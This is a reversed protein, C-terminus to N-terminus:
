NEKAGRLFHQALIWLYGMVPEKLMGELGDSMLWGVKRRWATITVSPQTVYAM